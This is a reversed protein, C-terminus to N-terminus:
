LRLAAFRAKIRTDLMDRVLRYEELRRERTGEVATPDFTPWYEVDISNMRTLELNQHHAEPTLSIALDFSTDELQSFAKPRHRSIDVGLEDMVEVAFPDLEGKRVGCSDVFVQAGFRLKMLGEAMPSRVANLNCAFLVAQPPRDLPL